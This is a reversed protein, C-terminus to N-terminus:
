CSLGTLATAVSGLDLNEPLGSTGADYTAGRRPMGPMPLTEWLESTLEPHTDMFQRIHRCWAIILLTRSWPRDGRLRDRYGQRTVYILGQMMLYGPLADSLAGGGAHHAAVKTWSELWRESTTEHQQLSYEDFDGSCLETMCYKTVFFMAIRPPFLAPAALPDGYRFHDVVEKLRLGDLRQRMSGYPSPTELTRAWTIADPAEWLESECTLVFPGLTHQLDM